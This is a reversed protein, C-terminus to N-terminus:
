GFLKSIIIIKKGEFYENSFLEPIEVTKFLSPSLKNVRCCEEIEAETDGGKLFILGKSYKGKVWPLFDKLSTVARSVVWDYKEPLAEARACVVKVNKLGLSSSVEGAVRIKKAISDCLTFQAQPFVIALPIGPFGGGTGVDLISTGPTFLKNDIAPKAIAISHLIHHLYIQDIDKRSIVNIKSNWESYLTAIKRFQEQQVATLEPFYKFILSSDEM